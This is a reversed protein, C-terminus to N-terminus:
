GALVFSVTVRVAVVLSPSGQLPVLASNGTSAPWCAITMTVRVQPREVGSALEPETRTTPETTSWVSMQGCSVPHLTEGSVVPGVPEISRVEAALSPLAVSMRVYTHLAAGF